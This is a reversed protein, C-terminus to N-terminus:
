DEVEMRTNSGMEKQLNTHIFLILNKNQTSRLHSLPKESTLFVYLGVMHFIM